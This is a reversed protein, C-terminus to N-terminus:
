LRLRHATGTMSSHNKTLVLFAVPLDTIKKATVLSDKWEGFFPHSKQNVSAQSCPFSMVIFLLFLLVMILIFKRM